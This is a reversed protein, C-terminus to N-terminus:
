VLTLSESGVPVSTHSRVKRAALEALGIAQEADCLASSPDPHIEAMAGAVGFAHACQLLTLAVSPDGATHSVDLWVPLPAEAALFVLVSIDVCNRSAADASANGRECLVIESAGYSQLRAAAALWDLTTAGLGRKLVITRGSRAAAQLLEFNWMSRAGIQIADLHTAAEAVQTACTVESVAKLGNDRAIDGLWRFATSGHGQFSSTKTRLKIAGGRLYTAGAESAAVACASLQQESEIACPGLILDYTRRDGSPSLDSMAERVLDFGTTRM